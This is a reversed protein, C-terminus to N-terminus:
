LGTRGNVEADHRLEAMFEDMSRSPQGMRDMFQDFAFEQENGDMQDFKIRGDLMAQIQKFNLLSSREVARGLAIWYEAQSALSRHQNRSEERLMAMGDDSIRLTQAM